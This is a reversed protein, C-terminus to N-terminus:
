ITGSYPQQAHLYTVYGRFISLKESILSKIVGGYSLVRCQSSIWVHFFRHEEIKTTGIYQQSQNQDKFFDHEM